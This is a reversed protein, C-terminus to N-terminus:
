LYILSHMSYSSYLVNYMYQLTFLLSFIHKYGTKLAIVISPDVKINFRNCNEIYTSVILDNEQKTNTGTHILSLSPQTKSSLEAAETTFSEEKKTSKRRSM